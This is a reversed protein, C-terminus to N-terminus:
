CFSAANNVVLVRSAHHLIMTPVSTQKAGTIVMASAGKCGCMAARLVKISRWPTVWGAGAGRKERVGDVIRSGSLTSRASRTWSQRAPFYFYERKSCDAQPARFDHCKLDSRVAFIAVLVKRGM